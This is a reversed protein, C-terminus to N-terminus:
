HSQIHKHQTSKSVTTGAGTYAILCQKYKTGMTKSSFRETRSFALSCVEQGDHAKPIYKCLSQQGMWLKITGDASASSAYLFCQATEIDYLRVVFHTTGALIYDGTPHFALCRVSMFRGANKERKDMEVKQVKSLEEYYSEKGFRFPDYKEPPYNTGFENIGCYPILKEYISPNRFDKREQIVKNMDLKERSDNIMLKNIKNQLDQPCKGAPEPPLKVGLHEYKKDIVSDDPVDEVNAAEESPEEPEEESENEEDDDDSAITDDHYSVLRTKTRPKTNPKPNKPPTSPASSSGSQIEAILESQEEEEVNEEGESDTYTATLSALAQSAM